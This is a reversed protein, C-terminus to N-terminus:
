REKTCDSNTCVGGSTLENGCRTCYRKEEPKEENRKDNASRHQAFVAVLAIITALTRFM